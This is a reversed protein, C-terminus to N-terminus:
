IASAAMGLVAPESLVRASLRPAAALAGLAGLLAISGIALTEALLAFAFASGLRGEPLEGFTSRPDISSALATRWLRDGFGGSGEWPLRHRDSLPAVPSARQECGLCEARGCRTCTVVPPVASEENENEPEGAM